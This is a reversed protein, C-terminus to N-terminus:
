FIEGSQSDLWFAVCGDILMVAIIGDIRQRWVRERIDMEVHQAEWGGNLWIAEEQETLILAM